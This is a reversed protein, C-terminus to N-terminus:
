KISLAPSDEKYGYLGFFQRIEEHPLTSLRMYLAVLFWFTLNIYEWDLPDSNFFNIYFAIVSICAARRFAKVLRPQERWANRLLQIPIRLLLGGIIIVGLMGTGYLITLYQNDVVGYGLFDMPHRYQQYLKFVSSLGAGIIPNDVFIRWATWHMLLRHWLSPDSILYRPDMRVTIMKVFTTHTIVFIVAMLILLSIILTKFSRVGMLVIAFILAIISGRSYTTFTGLVIPLAALGWWMKYKWNSAYLLGFLALPIVIPFIMAAFNPQGCFGIARYYSAGPFYPRERWLYLYHYFLNYKLIQEVIMYIGIFVTIGIILKMTKQIQQGNSFFHYVLFYTVPGPLIIHQWAHITFNVDKSFLCNLIALIVLAGFWRDLPTASLKFNGQIAGVTLLIFILGLNMLSCVDLMAFKALPFFFLRVPFLLAIMLIIIITWRPNVLATATFIFAFLILLVVLASWLPQQCFIIGQLVILGGWLIPSLRFPIPSSINAAQTSSRIM